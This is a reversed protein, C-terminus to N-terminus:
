GAQQSSAFHEQALRHSARDEKYLCVAHDQKMVRVSYQCSNCSICEAETVNQNSLWISPLDAQCILPRCLGIFDAAHTQLIREAQEIDRIGGTLIVQCNADIQEAYKLFHPTRNLIQGRPDYPMGSIEIADVGTAEIAEIMEPFQHIDMGGEINDTCNVKTIIPFDGVRGWATSVIEKLIRARGEASGGYDDNRHNYFPSLFYSLCNHLFAAHLQVGDFGMEKVDAIASAFCEVVEGIEPVSLPQVEKGWRPSQIRSPGSLTDGILQVFIRCDPGARHTREAIKRYEPLGRYAFCHATNGDQKDAAKQRFMARYLGTIILGVGGQALNAYLRLTGESVKNEQYIARDFTASRVLRNKVSIRGVRGERFLRYHGRVM